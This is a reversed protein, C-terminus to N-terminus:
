PLLIELKLGALEIVDGDALPAGGAAMPKGNIRPPRNSWLSNLVYGDPGRRIVAREGGEQGIPTLPRRLDIERGVQPGTLVRLRAMEPDPAAPAAEHRPPAPRPPPAPQVPPAAPPEPPASQVPRAPQVPPAAPPGPPASRVPPAAPPEPPAQSPREAAAQGGPAPGPEGPGPAPALPTRIVMTKEIAAGGEVPPHLYRLEHRGIVIVDNHRLLHKNIVKGNVVTGNTSDLDELVADRDPTPLVRVVAHRSSVAPDDIRISNERHRGITIRESAVPYEHLFRGDRSVVLRADTSKM